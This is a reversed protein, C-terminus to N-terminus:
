AHSQSGVYEQYDQLHNRIGAIAVERSYPEGLDFPDETLELEIEQAEEFTSGVYTMLLRNGFEGRATEINDFPTLEVEPQFLQTGELDYDTEAILVGWHDDMQDSMTFCHLQKQSETCSIM